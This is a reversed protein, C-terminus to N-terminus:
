TASFWGTVGTGTINPTSFLVFNDVPYRVPGNTAWLRFTFEGAPLPDNNMHDAADVSGDGVTKSQEPYNVVFRAPFTGDNSSEFSGIYTATYNSASAAPDSWTALFSPDVTAGASPASIVPLGPMTVSGTADFTGDSQIDGRLDYNAGAVLSLAANVDSIKGYLGPGIQPLDDWGTGHNIQVTAGDVPTHAANNVTIKVMAIQRPASQADRGRLLQAEIRTQNTAASQLVVNAGLCGAGISGAPGAFAGVAFAGSALASAVIQVPMSPPVQITFAGSADTRTAGGPFAEVAANPTPAGDRTVMGSFCATGADFLGAAIWGGTTVSVRVVPLSAFVSSTTVVGDAFSKWVGSPVDYRFCAVHAGPTLEPLSQMATSIPLD